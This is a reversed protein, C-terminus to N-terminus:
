DSTCTAGAFMAVVRADPDAGELVGHIPGTPTGYVFEGGMVPDPVMRIAVLQELQARTIGPAINGPAAATAGARMAWGVLRERRFALQIPGYSSFAMPGGDCAASNARRTAGTGYAAAAGREIAARDSGFPFRARSADSGAFVLGQADLVLNYTLGAPEESGCAGLLFAATCAAANRIAPM